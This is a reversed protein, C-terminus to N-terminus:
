EKNKSACAKKKLAKKAKRIYFGDMRCEDSCYKKWWCTTETVKGCIKCKAKKVM